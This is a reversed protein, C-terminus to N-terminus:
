RGLVWLVFVDGIQKPLALLLFIGRSSWITGLAGLAVYASFCSM